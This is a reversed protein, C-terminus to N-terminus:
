YVFFDGHYLNLTTALKAIQIQAAAGNGDPDYYLAGTSRNYIVYDNGDLARAGIRFESAQLGGNTLSTFAFGLDITDDTSNFDTIRDIGGARVTSSDFVFTDRGGGGTLVDNGDHGYLADDGGAGNITDNGGAGNITDNGSTGVLSNNQATGTITKGISPTPDPMPSPTPTPATASPVGDWIQVDDLWVDVPNNAYPNGMFIRTIPANNVGINDGTHDFLTQGDVKLWTRGDANGRHSFFEVKFWEGQPVPVSTNYQQWFTQLPVNGNANTDWQMNWALTGDGFAVISPAVRFDGASKWEPLPAFWGGPGLKSWLNDPLKVWASM